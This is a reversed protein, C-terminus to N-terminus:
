HRIETGKAHKGFQKHRRLTPMATEIREGGGWNIQLSRNGRGCPKLNDEKQRGENQIVM